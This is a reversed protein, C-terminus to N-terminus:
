DDDFGGFMAAWDAMKMNAHYQAQMQPTLIEILLRNELWLEVCEFPGRNCLRSTWGHKSGIALIDDTALWTALAIHAFTTGNDTEGKACQVQSNGPELRHELPYVEIATGDDQQAFAIWSDPFPLFPMCKGGMIQALTKGVIKPDRANISM